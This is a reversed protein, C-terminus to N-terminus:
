DVKGVDIEDDFGFGVDLFGFDIGVFKDVQYQVVDVFCLVYVIEGVFGSVLEFDEGVEVLYYDILEMWVVGVFDDGFVCFGFEFGKEVKM